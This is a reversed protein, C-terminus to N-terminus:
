SEQSFIESPPMSGLVVLQLATNMPNLTYGFIEFAFSQIVNLQM